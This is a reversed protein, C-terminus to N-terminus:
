NKTENEEIKSMKEAIIEETEIDAFELVEFFKGENENKGIKSGYLYYIKNKKIAYNEPEKANILKQNEKFGIKYKENAINFLAREKGISNGYIIRVVKDKMFFISIITGNAESDGCYYEIPFNTVEIDEMAQRTPFVKLIEKFQSKDKNIKFIDLNCNIAHASSMILILFSSFIFLKKMM